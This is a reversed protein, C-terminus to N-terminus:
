GGPSGWYLQGFVAFIGIYVLLSVLRLGLKWRRGRLINLLLLALGAWSALFLVLVIAVGTGEGSFFAVIEPDLRDGWALFISMWSLAVVGFWILLQETRVM